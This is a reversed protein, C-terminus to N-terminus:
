TSVVKNTLLRLGEMKINIAANLDRNLSEGCNPCVWQRHSLKLNQNKHGCLNCLKSSPFFRDIEIITRDFWEAKYFLKRKFEYLSLSSIAKALSHNQLMGKVNLNEISIIQNDNILKNTIEHLFYDKKNNIKEYQRALKIRQKRYNTSGKTKRSLARQHKKIRKESKKLFNPNKIEEGNSLVAYTKIGLDVGISNTSKPKQTPVFNNITFSFYWKGSVSKRLCSQGISDKHDQLYQKDKESCRFKLDKFGSASFKNSLFNNNRSLSMGQYLVTQENSKKKYKPFGNGNVFFSKYASLLNTIGLKLSRTNHETLFPYEKTLENHFYISLEKLGLNEKTEKYHNSKKELCKNYVFRYCGFLKSFYIEQEKTPYVRVKIAKTFSM